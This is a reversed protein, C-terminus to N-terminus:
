LAGWPYGLWHVGWRPYVNFDRMCFVPDACFKCSGTYKLDDRPSGQIRTHCWKSSLAGEELTHKQGRHQLGCLQIHRPSNRCGGDQEM